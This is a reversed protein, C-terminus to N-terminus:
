QAGIIDPDNLRSMASAPVPKCEPQPPIVVPETRKIAAVAIDRKVDATGRTASDVQNHKQDANDQKAQTAAGQGAAQTTATAYPKVVSQEGMYFGGGFAVITAALTILLLYPKLFDFIM